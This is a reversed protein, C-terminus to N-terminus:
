NRRAKRIISWATLLGVVLGVALSSIRLWWELEQQFSTIVGLLNAGIGVAGKALTHHHEEMMKM